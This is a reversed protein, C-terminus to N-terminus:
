AAEKEVVYNDRIMKWNRGLDRSKTGDGLDRNYLSSGIVEYDAGAAFGRFPTVIRSQDGASDLGDRIGPVVTILNKTQPDSKLSPLELGSCVIGSMGARAAQKAFVMVQELATRGNYTERCEEDDITTLVTVAISLRDSENSACEAAFARMAKVGSSAGCNLMDLGYKCAAAATRGLVKETNFYKPDVFVKLGIKRLDQIIHYGVAVLHIPNVKVWVGGLKKWLQADLWAEKWSEHDLALIIRSALEELKPIKFAVITEMYIACGWAPPKGLQFLVIYKPYTLLRM